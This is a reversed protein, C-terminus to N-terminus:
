FPMAQVVDTNINESEVNRSELKTLRYFGDASKSIFCLECAKAIHNNAARKAFGSLEMYETLLDGHKMAKPAKLIVRMISQIKGNALASKEPKAIDGVPEPLSNEIRFHFDDFPMNRTANPTVTSVDENKVVEFVTEGKNLAEAGYHGRLEGNGKGEHLVGCIHCNYETSLKMLLGIVQKSEEASNFDGIIDVAGDLIILDPRYDKIAKELIIQREKFSYERLALVKLRSNEISWNCLKYIRRLVKHVHSNAQESDIFLVKGDPSGSQLGFSDNGFFSTVFISSLFSKRAKAKGKIFSINGRSMLLADGQKLIPDPEQIQDSFHIELDKLNSGIPNFTKINEDTSLKVMDCVDVVDAGANLLTTAQQCTTLMKRKAALELLVFAHQELNATSLIDVSLMSIYVLGGAGDIATKGGIQQSVTIMDVRKGSQRLDCIIAYIERNASNYFCDANLIDSVRDFAESELLLAGLVAKEAELSNPMTGMPIFEPEQKKYPQRM